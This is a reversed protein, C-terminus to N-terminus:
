HGAMSSGNLQGYYGPGGNSPPQPTGSSGRSPGMNAGTQGAAALRAQTQAAIQARQREMMQQQEHTTMTSHFGSPGIAAAQAPGYFQSRVQGTPQTRNYQPPSGASATTMGHTGPQLPSATRMHPSHAPQQYNYSSSGMNQPRAAYNSVPTQAYNRNQMQQANGQHFTSSYNTRGASIQQQVQQYFHSPQPTQPYGGGRTPTSQNYGHQPYGPRPSTTPYGGAYTQVGSSSRQYPLSPTRVPQGQQSYFSSPNRSSTQVPTNRNYHNASGPYNSYSTTPARPPLQQSQAVQPVIPQKPPTVVNDEGMIGPEDGSEVVIHSSVNLEELQDGNLKAVAYPPLQAILLALQAKLTRYVENEVTSPTSPTGIVEALLNKQGPTMSITPLTSLRMRQYSYLTQILDSIEQLLDDVETDDESKIKDFDIDLDAPDFKEVVEKFLTAEEELATEPKQIDADEELLLPDVFVREARQRGVHAWWLGSKTEGPVIAGSNDQTPAFSSFVSRFLADYEAQEKAIRSAESPPPHAAGTSLARDRQRRKEEPSSPELTTDVGGYGLWQGVSLRVSCYNYHQRPTSRSLNEASVWTVTSGKTILPNSPKPTQLQPLNRPPPFREGLKPTKVKPKDKGPEAPIRTVSIFNPLGSDRLPLTVDVSSDFQGNKEPDSTGVNVPKQFSSFLQKIGQANAFMSLVPRGGTPGGADESKIVIDDADPKRVAGLSSVGNTKGGKPSKHSEQEIINKLIKQFALTGAWLRTDALSIQDIQVHSGAALATEKAKFPRLIEACAKDVHHTLAELSTYAGAELLEAITNRSAEESLKTRKLSPESSSNEDELRHQL